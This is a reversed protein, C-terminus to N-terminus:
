ASQSQCLMETHREYLFNDRDRGAQFGIAGFRVNSDFQAAFVRFYDVEFFSINLLTHIADTGTACTRKDVLHSIEKLRVRGTKILVCSLVFRDIRDRCPATDEGLCVYLWEDILSRCALIQSGRNELRDDVLSNGTKGAALRDATVDSEEATRQM